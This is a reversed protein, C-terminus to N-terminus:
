DRVAIKTGDFIVSILITLFGLTRLTLMTKSLTARKHKDPKIAIKAM